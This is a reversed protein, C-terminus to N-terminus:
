AERINTRYSIKEFAQREIESFHKKFEATDLTLKYFEPRKSAPYKKTIIDADLGRIPTRIVVLDGAEHPVGPELTELQADIKAKEAGLEKLQEMVEQRRHALEALKKQTLKPM